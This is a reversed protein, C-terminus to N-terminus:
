MLTRGLLQTMCRFFNSTIGKSTGNFCEFIFDCINESFDIVMSLLEVNNLRFGFSRILHQIQFYIFHSTINFEILSSNFVCHIRFFQLLLFLMTSQKWLNVLQINIIVSAIRFCHGHVPSDFLHIFLNATLVSHSM